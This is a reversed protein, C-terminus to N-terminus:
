GPQAGWATGDWWRWAAPDQPDPYWGAPSPGAARQAELVRALLPRVKRDVLTATYMGVDGKPVVSVGVPGTPTLLEIPRASWWNPERGLAVSAAPWRRDGLVVWGDSIVLETNVGSGVFWMSTASRVRIRLVGLASRRELEDVAAALRTSRWWSAVYLAVLMPVLIVVFFGFLQRQIFYAAAGLVIALVGAVVWAASSSGATVALDVRELGPPPSSAGGSGQEV